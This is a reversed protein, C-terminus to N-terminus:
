RVACLLHLPLESSRLSQQWLPIGLTTSATAVVFRFLPKSSGLSNNTDRWPCCWCSRQTNNSSKPIVKFSSLEKKADDSKLFCQKEVAPLWLTRTTTRRKRRETGTSLLNSRWLPEFFISDNNRRVFKCFSVHLLRIASFIRRRDDTSPHRM